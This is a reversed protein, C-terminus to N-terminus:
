YRLGLLSGSPDTDTLRLRVFSQIDFGESFDEQPLMDTNMTVIYQFGYERARAEATELAHARQRPDVGDFVTSDHVLVDVGLARARSFAALMLDYCFIKMKGIGESPSGPIDVSFRYGTEDIDIVLRGPTRYLAESNASFMRLAKSWIPRREEYDQQALQKLDVTAAKVEDNKITLNRVQAIRQRVEELRQRGAAHREQLQTLEELAGRGALVSLLSAREKTLAEIQADRQACRSVLRGIEDAVFSRRNEVIKRNFERAQDLTRVVVGSLDIGAQKYLNELQADEPTVEATLSERYRAIRRQDAINANLLEHIEATLRNANAEIDKYQPLVQFSTLARHDVDLQAELQVRAAELEGLTGLVGDIAGTKLANKFADLASKRDKLVQWQSAKTWDLGLLFANHLQVDWTKQASFHKFPDIYAAPQSRVFFSLLSRTSPQYEEAAEAGISLGFLAWGLLSRWAKVDYGSRDGGKELKPQLPWTSTKGEVEVFNATAIARTVRVKEGFLSLSLSFAWDVLEPSQLSQKPNSGLCFDIIDVLTSKGLANTTDKASARASRDALILNLGPQFSVKRFSRHNAEIAHIM